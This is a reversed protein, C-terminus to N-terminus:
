QRYIDLKEAALEQHMRRQVTKATMSQGAGFDYGSLPGQERPAFPHMRKGSLRHWAMGAVLLGLVGALGGAVFFYWPERTVPTDQTTVFAPKIGEVSAKEAAPHLEITCTEREVVGNHPNHLSLVVEAWLAENHEADQPTDFTVSRLGNTVRMKTGRTLKHGACADKHRLACVVVQEIAAMHADDAGPEALAEISWEHTEVDFTPWLQWACSPSTLLLVCLTVVWM